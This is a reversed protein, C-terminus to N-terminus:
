RASGHTTLGRDSVRLEGFNSWTCYLVCKFDSGRRFGDGVLGECPIICDM